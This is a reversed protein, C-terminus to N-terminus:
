AISLYNQGIWSKEERNLCSDNCLHIGLCGTVGARLYNISCRREKELEM